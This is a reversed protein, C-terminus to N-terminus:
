LKIIKAMESELNEILHDLDSGYKDFCDNPAPNPQFYILKVQGEGICLITTEQDPKAGEIIGLIEQLRSGVNRNLTELSDPACPIFHPTPQLDIGLITGDNQWEQQLGWALAALQPQFDRVFRDVQSRWKEQAIDQNGFPSAFM